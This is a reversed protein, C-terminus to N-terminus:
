EMQRLWVLGIEKCTEWRAALGTKRACQNIISFFIFVTLAVVGQDMGIWKCHLLRCGEPRHHRTCLIWTDAQQPWSPCYPWARAGVGDGCCSTLDGCSRYRRWMYCAGCWGKQACDVRCLRRKTRQVMETICVFLKTYISPCSGWM